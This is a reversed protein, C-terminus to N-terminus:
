VVPLYSSSTIRRHTIELHLRMQREAIQPEGGRIADVIRVHEEMAQERREQTLPRQRPTDWHKRGAPSILTYLDHLLTNRTARAIIRHLEVDWRSFAELSPADRQMALADDMAELDAQSASLAALLANRPELALRAEILERPNISQIVSDRKKEDLTPAVFTGRGVHRWVLGQDVLQRMATRVQSRTLNLQEALDREAPLRDGAALEASRIFDKIMTLPSRSGTM